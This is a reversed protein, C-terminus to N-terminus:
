QCLLNVELYKHLFDTSLHQLKFLKNKFIIRNWHFNNSIAPHILLIVCKINLQRGSSPQHWHPQWLPQWLSTLSGTWSPRLLVWKIDFDMPLASATESLAGLVPSEPRSNTRYKMAPVAIASLRFYKFLPRLGNTVTGGWVVCDTVWQSYKLLKGLDGPTLVTPLALFIAQNFSWTDDRTRM